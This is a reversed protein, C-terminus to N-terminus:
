LLVVVWCLETMDITQWKNIASSVLILILRMFNFSFMLIIWRVFIRSLFEVWHFWPFVRFEVTTSAIWVISNLRSISDSKKVSNVKFFWHVVTRYCISGDGAHCETSYYASSDLCKEPATEYPCAPTHMTCLMVHADRVHCICKVLNPSLIVCVFVIYKEM